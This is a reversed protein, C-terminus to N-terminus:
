ELKTTDLATGISWRYIDLTNSFISFWELFIGHLDHSRVDGGGGGGGGFTNTQRSFMNISYMLTIISVHDQSFQLELRNGKLWTSFSISKLEQTAYISCQLLIDKDYKDSLNNGSKFQIVFIVWNKIVSLRVQVKTINHGLINLLAIVVQLWIETFMNDVFYRCCFRKKWEKM